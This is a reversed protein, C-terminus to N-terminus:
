VLRPLKTLVQTAIQRAYGDDIKLVMQLIQEQELITNSVIKNLMGTSDIVDIITSAPIHAICMSLIADWLNHISFFDRKFLADKIVKQGVPMVLLYVSWPVMFTAGFLIANIVLELEKNKPHSFQKPIYEYFKSSFDRVSTNKYQEIFYKKMQERKKKNLEKILSRPVRPPTSNGVVYYEPQTRRVVEENYYQTRDIENLVVELPKIEKPFPLGTKLNIEETPEINIRRIKPQIIENKQENM